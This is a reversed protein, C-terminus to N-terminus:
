QNAETPLTAPFADRYRDACLQLLLCYQVLEHESPPTARKVAHFVTALGYALGQYFEQPLGEPILFGIQETEKETLQGQTALLMERSIDMATKM